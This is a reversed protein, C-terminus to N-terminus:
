ARALDAIALAAGEAVPPLGEVWVRPSVPSEEAGGILRRVLRVRQALRDDRLPSSSSGTAAWAPWPRPAPSSRACPRRGALRPSTAASCTPAPRCPRSSRPWRAPPIPTSSSSPTGSTPPRRAWRPGTSRPSARRCTRSAPSGPSPTRAPSTTSTASRPRAGARPWRGPRTSAPSPASCSTPRTACGRRAGRAALARRRGAAPRGGHLRRRHGDRDRSGGGSGRVAAAPGSAPETVSGSEDRAPCSLGDERAGRLDGRWGKRETSSVTSRRLRAGMVTNESAKPNGQRRRRRPPADDRADDKAPHTTAGTHLAHQADLVGRVGLQDRRDPATVDVGVPLEETAVDVGGPAEGPLQHRGGVGVVEHGLGERLHQDHELAAAAGVEGEAGVQEGGDAPEVDVPDARRRPEVGGVVHVGEVGAHGEAVGGDLAEVVGGRRPGEGRQRFAPLHHEPVGLDLPLLRAVDRRQEAHAGVRHGRQGVPGALPQALREEGHVHLLEVLVGAGPGM